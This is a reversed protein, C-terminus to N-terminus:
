ARSPHFHRWAALAYHFVWVLIVGVAGVVLAPDRRRTM